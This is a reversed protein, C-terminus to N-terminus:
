RETDCTPSAPPAWPPTALRVPAPPQGMLDQIRQQDVEYRQTAETEDPSGFLLTRVVRQRVDAPVGEDDMAMDVLHLMRQMWTTKWHHTPDLRAAADPTPMRTRFRHLTEDVLRSM